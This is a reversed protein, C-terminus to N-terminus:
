ELVIFVRELRQGAEDTLTLVHRGPAPSLSMQHTGRTSGVFRGDLDWFITKDRDRHTAAFLLAQLAGDLRTARSLRAGPSPHLLQIPADERDEPCEPWLPPMPQYDPHQRQYYYAEVPPFVLWSSPRALAPPLCASNVRFPADPHLLLMQHYPCNEPRHGTLPLLITDTPCYPGPPRGTQACIATRRLDDYPPAFWSTPPLLDLLDFLLPAASKIGTLEPRAEGDANGVWVGLTYEPTVAVSWADKYGFSTGTKWAVARSSQFYTWNYAEEPRDPLRMAELMAWIVGASLQPPNRDFAPPSVPSESPHWQVQASLPIRRYRAEDQTYAELTRALFAYAQTIEWLKVEGGGLILTLGYDAAPRQLSHFGLAHLRKLFRDVGYQQLLRVLPVNLSSAIAQEAPVLGQWNRYFNEPRYTGYQTPIDPILSNRWILGDQLSWAYLLPKLTSGPSRAAQIIDVAGGKDPPALPNNGAYTLVKGSRNDILLAAMNFIGNGSLRLHHRRLADRFAKQLGADLTSRIRGRSTKGLTTLLEPADQPLPQPAEPLPEALALKLDTEDLFGRRHLKTLLADRKSHLQDRNRGPHILAPSNPLVALLAAEAWSLLSPDKGFYRWSAAELGVVNGGFPAQELFTQILFAGSHRFRLRLATHAEIIKESVTRARGRRQLRVLQMAITSAGRRRGKGRLNHFAAKVLSVPNIGPHWAFWEDEFLLLATIVRQPPPEGSPFRWQGDPAIRASLLRGERDELLLSVPDTHLPAPWALSFALLLWLGCSAQILLRRGAM